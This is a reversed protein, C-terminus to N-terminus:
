ILSKVTSRDEHFYWKSWRFLILETKKHTVLIGPIHKTTWKPWEGCLYTSTSRSMRAVRTSRRGCAIALVRLTHSLERNQSTAYKYQNSAHVVRHGWTFLCPQNQAQAWDILSTTVLLATEWQSPAFRSDARFLTIVQIYFKVAVALPVGAMKTKDISVQLTSIAWNTSM